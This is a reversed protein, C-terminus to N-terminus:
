AGSAMLRLILESVKQAYHDLMRVTRTDVSHPMPTVLFVAGLATGGSRLPLLVRSDGQETDAAGLSLDQRSDQVRSAGPERLARQLLLRVERRDWSHPRAVMLLKWDGGPLHYTIFGRQCTIIGNLVQVMLQELEPLSNVSESRETLELIAALQFGDGELTQLGLLKKDPPATLELQPPPLPLPLTEDQSIEGEDLSNTPESELPDVVGEEFLPGTQVWKHTESGTPQPLHIQAPEEGEVVLRFTFVDSFGILDGAQIQRSNVQEGNVFTGNASGLDRLYVARPTVVIQAHYRSVAPSALVLINGEQLRGVKNLGSSLNVELPDDAETTSVLSVRREENIEGNM